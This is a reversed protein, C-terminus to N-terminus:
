LPQGSPHSSQQSMVEITKAMGRYIRKKRKSLVNWKNVLSEYVSNLKDHTDMSVLEYGSFQNDSLYFKDFDIIKTFHVNFYLVFPKYAFELEIGYYKKLYNKSGFYDKHTEYDQQKRKDSVSSFYSWESNDKNKNEEEDKKEEELEIFHSLYTLIKQYANNIEKFKEESGGKDPHHKRAMIKYKKKVSEITLDCKDLGLALFEKTLYDKKANM